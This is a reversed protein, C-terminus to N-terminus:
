CKEWQLFFFFSLFRSFKFNSFLAIQLITFFIESKKKKITVYFIDLQKKWWQENEEKLKKFLKKLHENM